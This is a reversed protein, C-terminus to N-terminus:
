KKCEESPIPRERKSEEFADDDTLWEDEGPWSEPMTLPASKSEFGCPADQKDLAVGQNPVQFFSAYLYTIRGPKRTEIPMIQSPGTIDRAPILPTSKFAHVVSELIYSAYATTNLCSTSASNASTTQDSGSASPAHLNNVQHLRLSGEKEMPKPLNTDIAEQLALGLYRVRSETAAPSRKPAVMDSAPIQVKVFDCEVDAEGEAVGQGRAEAKWVNEHTLGGSKASAGHRLTMAKLRRGLSLEAEGLRPASPALARALPRSALIATFNSRSNAKSLGKHLTMDLEKLNETKSNEFRTKDTDDHEFEVTEHEDAFKYFGNSNTDAKRPELILRVMEIETSQELKTIDTIELNEVHEHEQVSKVIVYVDGFKLLAPRSTAGNAFTINVLSEVFSMNILTQEAASTLNGQGQNECDSENNAKSCCYLWKWGRKAKDSQNRDKQNSGNASKIKRRFSVIPPPMGEASMMGQAREYIFRSRQTSPGALPDLSGGGPQNALEYLSTAASRPSGRRCVVRENNLNENTHKSICSRRMSPGGSAAVIDAAAISTGEDENKVALSPFGISQSRPIAAESEDAPRWISNFCKRLASQHSPPTDVPTELDSMTRKSFMQSYSLKKKWWKLEKRNKGSERPRKTKVFEENLIHAATASDWVQNMPIHERPCWNSKEGTTSTLVISRDQALQPDM